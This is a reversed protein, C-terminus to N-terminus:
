YQTLVSDICDGAFKVEKLKDRMFKHIIQNNNTHIAVEKLRMENQMDIPSMEM